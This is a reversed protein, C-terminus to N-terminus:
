PLRIKFIQTFIIYVAALLAVSYLANKKVSHPILYCMGGMLFFLSALLFPVGLQLLLYYAVSSALFVVTEKPVIYARVAKLQDYVARKTNESPKKLDKIFDIVVLIMMGGSIVLPFIGPGSLGPNALYITLSQAFFFLAFVFLVVSFIRAGPALVKKPDDAMERDAMSAENKKIDDNMNM